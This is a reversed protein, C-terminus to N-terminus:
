IIPPAAPAWPSTTRVPLIAGRDAAMPAMVPSRISPYGPNPGHILLWGRLRQVGDDGGPMPTEAFGIAFWDAGTHTANMDLSIKYKNGDVPTFPLAAWRPDATATMAGGDM